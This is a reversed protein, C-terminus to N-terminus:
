IIFMFLYTDDDDHEDDDLVVHDYNLIWMMIRHSALHVLLSFSFSLVAAANLPLLLSAVMVSYYTSDHKNTFWESFPWCTTIVVFYYLSDTLLWFFFSGYFLRSFFTFLIFLFIYSFLFEDRYERLSVQSLVVM